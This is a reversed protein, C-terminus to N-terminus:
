APTVAARAAARAERRRRIRSRLFFVLGVIVLVTFVIALVPVLLALVSMTVSAVDEVTSVVPAAVGATAVNAVPRAAAKIGHVVLAIVIGTIVPVWNTETLASPDDLKLAEANAGAGFVIGGAAPRIATQVIDNVSDLAPIKDAVVEIVLLGGIIWLALDSSVWTWGAPLTVFETFRALLGLVLLPIWANLGAAAALSSGVLFEVM